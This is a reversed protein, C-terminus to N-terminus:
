PMAGAPRCSSCCPRTPSRGGAWAFRTRRATRRSAPRETSGRVTSPPSRGVVPVFQQAVPPPMQLRRRQEPSQDACGLRHGPRPRLPARRSADDVIWRGVRRQVPGDRQLHQVALREAAPAIRPVQKGCPLARLDPAPGALPPGRQRGAHLVHAELAPAGDGHDAADGVPGVAHDVHIRGVGIGVSGGVAHRHVVPRQPLRRSAQLHRTATDPKPPSHSQRPQRLACISRPM